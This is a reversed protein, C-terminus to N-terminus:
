KAAAKVRAGDKMGEPPRAVIRQGAKLGATIEVLDGLPAGVTVPAETVREGNLLFVGKGQARTILAAPPVALRPSKENEKVGRELFAVKASMEPLIRPDKELFRVKVMVTAKARDATPVVAHVVGAFRRDPLADLLIECPQGVKVKGVSSEAVDAEVQLSGMDAITVVASRANAAAGLPTVIDGVDANKTLVVGDFPARINSYEVSVAAGKLTAAAARMSAEGAAVAARAKEVRSHAVDFEARSVVGQEVLERHRGLSLAADALEARAQALSERSAALAAAAQERSAVTDDNELRAIVEGARVRSGEEVGLWELRGTAKCAVAAKRQAVVYGTANLVTFAHSPYVTSVSVTEVEYAGRLRDRGFFLGGGAALLLVAVATIRGGRKRTPSPNKHIKLAQLDDRSM